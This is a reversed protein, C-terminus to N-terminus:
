NDLNPQPDVLPPNEKKSGLFWGFINRLFGLSREPSSFNVQNLRNCLGMHIDGPHSSMIKEKTRLEQMRLMQEHHDNIEDEDDNSENANEDNEYQHDGKRGKKTAVAFHHKVLEKSSLYFLLMISM